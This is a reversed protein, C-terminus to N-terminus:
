GGPRAIQRCLALVVSKFYDLTIKLPEVPVQAFDFFDFIEEDSIETVGSDLIFIKEFFGFNARADAADWGREGQYVERWRKFSSATLYYFDGQADLEAKKEPSLMIAACNRPAPFVSGSGRVVSPMDPHCMSGYLLAARGGAGAIGEKLAAALKAENADLAPPLFEPALEAADGDAAVGPACSLERQIEPLIKELELRFVGCALVPIKM